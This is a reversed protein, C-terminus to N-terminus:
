RIVRTVKLALDLFILKAYGNAEIHSHALNFEKTLTFINNTNIFPHFKGSFESEEASLFVLNNQLQELSLMLNERLLRLSYALFNKQSERGAAAMEESWDIGVVSGQFGAQKAVLRPFHGTQTGLDLLHETSAIDLRRILLQWQDWHDRVEFTGARLNYLRRL